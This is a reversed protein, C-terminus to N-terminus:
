AKRRKKGTKDRGTKPCANGTGDRAAGNMARTEESGPRWDHAATETGGNGQTALVWKSLLFSANTRVTKRSRESSRELKVFQTVPLEIFMDVHKSNM